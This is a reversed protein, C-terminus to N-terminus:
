YNYSWGSLFKMFHAPDSLNIVNDQNVDSLAMDCRRDSLDWGAIYKMMLSVDSLNLHGSLDVDGISGPEVETVINPLLGGGICSYSTIAFSFMLVSVLLLTILKKM